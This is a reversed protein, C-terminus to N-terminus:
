PSSSSDATAISAAGLVSGPNGSSPMISPVTAAAASASTFSSTACPPVATELGLFSFLAPAGESSMICPESVAAWLFDELEQAREGKDAATKFARLVARMFSGRARVEGCTGSEM